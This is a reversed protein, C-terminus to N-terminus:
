TSNNLHLPIHKSQKGQVSWDGISLPKFNSFFQRQDSMHKSAGSDIIFTLVSNSDLETLSVLANAMHGTGRGRGSSKGRNNSWNPPYGVLKFCVKKEHGPINCHGCRPRKDVSGGQVGHLHGKGKNNFGSTGTDASFAESPQEM